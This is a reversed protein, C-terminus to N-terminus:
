KTKCASLQKRKRKLEGNILGPAPTDLQTFLAYVFTKSETESERRVSVTPTPPVPSAAAPDLLLDDEELEKM